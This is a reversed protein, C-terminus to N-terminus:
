NFAADFMGNEFDLALKVVNQFKYDGCTKEYRIPTVSLSELCEESFGDYSGNQLILSVGDHSDGLSYHEYVVAISNQPAGMCKREIICVMGVPYAHHISSCTSKRM